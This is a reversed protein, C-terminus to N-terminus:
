EDTLADEFKRKLQEIDSSLIKQIENFTERRGEFRAMQLPDVAGNKDFAITTQDVRNRCFDSLHGFLIRAQPRIAGDAIFLEVAAQALDLNRSIAEKSM